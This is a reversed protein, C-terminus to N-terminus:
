SDFARTHECRSPYSTSIYVHIHVRPVRMTLTAVNYFSFPNVDPPFIPTARVAYMPLGVSEIPATPASDFGRM